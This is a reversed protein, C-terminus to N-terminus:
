RTLSAELAAITREDLGNARFWDADWAPAWIHGPMNVVPIEDIGLALACAVRHSGNFLEGHQDIPVAHDPDFGFRRMSLYLEEAAMIYDGINRKWADTAVGAQM